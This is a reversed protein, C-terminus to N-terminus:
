RRRQGGGAADLQTAASWLPANIPNGNADVPCCAPTSTSRTSRSTAGSAPRTARRTLTSTPSASSRAASAWRRAPAPSTPSTPSRASSARPWNSRMARTSTSAAATSPRTGCTTSRRRDAPARRPPGTPRAPRSPTSATRIASRGEPASRCATRRQRAAMARRLGEGQRRRRSPLRPDLLVDRPRRPQQQDGTSGRTTRGRSAAEPRSGPRARCIPSRLCPRTTTAARRTPCPRTGTATPRCCTSTRSANEPSRSRASGHRGATGLRRSQRRLARRDRWMADPLPTGNNPSVKYANTFWTQKNATTFDKVNTFLTSNEWLTHFGVRSNQDLASFAIGSAAKM